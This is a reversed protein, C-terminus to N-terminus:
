QAGDSVINVGRPVRFVFDKDSLGRNEKMNMFTLTSEGGQRDKTTLSRIQLSGPDVTVVLYEYEPESRRPVLKLPVAGATGQGAFSAVFDRAIDGRGSLFLTPTSAQNGAPVDYVSVQKDEPVYWYIKTGDSVLEKHDPSSYVWRMKGPKKVSVTGKEQTQTKLVGGRYTQVFDASFDRVSQYRAQLAKAVADPSQPPAQASLQSVALLASAIFATVVALPRFKTMPSM